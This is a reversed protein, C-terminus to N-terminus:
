VRVRGLHGEGRKLSTPLNREHESPIPSLPPPVLPSGHFPLGIHHTRVVKCRVSIYHVFRLHFVCCCWLSSAYDCRLSSSGCCRRCGVAAVVVLLLSSLGCCRHRRRCAPSWRPLIWGLSPSEFGVVVVRVARGGGGGGERGFVLRLHNKEATEVCGGGGGGGECGFVLQLHNKQANWRM